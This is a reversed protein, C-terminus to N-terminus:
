NRKKIILILTALAVIIAFIWFLMTNTQRRTSQRSTSQKTTGGRLSSESVLLEELPENVVIVTDHVILTDSVSAKANSVVKLKESEVRLQSNDRDTIRDIRLTDGLTNTRITITTVERVTDYLAVM